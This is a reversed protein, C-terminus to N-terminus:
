KSSQQNSCPEELEQYHRGGLGGIGPFRYCIGMGSGQAKKESAATDSPVEYTASFPPTADILPPTPSPHTELVM